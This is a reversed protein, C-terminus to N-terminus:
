NCSAAVRRLSRVRMEGDVFMGSVTVREGVHDKLRNNWDVVDVPRTGKKLFGSKWSRSKPAGEGSTDKLRFSQGTQELCGEIMVADPLESATKPAASAAPAGSSEAARPMSLAKKRPVGAIVRVPKVPQPQVAPPDSAAAIASAEAREGSDSGRFMGVGALVAIAVFALGAGAMRTWGVRTRVQAPAADEVPIPAHTMGEPPTAVHAMAAEPTPAHPKAAPPRAVPAKGSAKAASTRARVKKKVAM